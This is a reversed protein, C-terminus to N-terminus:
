RPTTWDALKGVADDCWSEAKHFGIWGLVTGACLLVLATVVFVVSLLSRM